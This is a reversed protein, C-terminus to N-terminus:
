GGYAYRLAANVANVIAISSFSAGTQPSLTAGDSIETTQGSVSQTTFYGRASVIDTNHKTFQAYYSNKFSSMLTQSTNSEYKVGTIGTANASELVKDDSLMVEAITIVVWLTITGGKYGGSGTSKVLLFTEGKDTVYYAQDIISKGSATKQADSINLETMSEPESGFIKTVARMTAEDASVYFLSNCIAIIGGCIIVIIMLVALSKFANSKFFQKFTM